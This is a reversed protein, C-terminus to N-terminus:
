PIWCIPDLKARQNESLGERIREIPMHVKLKMPCNCAECVNLRDDFPTSLNMGTRRAYELKIAAAAPETFYRTWDGSGHKPCAVCVRARDTAVDQSVAEEKSKIWEIIIKAGVAVQAVRGVQNNHAITKPASDGTRTIYIDAGAIQAYRLANALDMMDEITKTDTPLALGPNALAHERYRTVLLAFDWQSTPDVVWSKWGTRKENYMFGNPGPQRRNKLKIM